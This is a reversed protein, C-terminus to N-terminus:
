TNCHILVASAYLLLWLWFHHRCESTFPLRSQLGQNTDLFFSILFLLDLSIVCFNNKKQIILWCKRNSLCLLFKSLKVSIRLNWEITALNLRQVHISFNVKESYNIHVSWKRSEFYDLFLANYLLFWIVHRKWNESLSYCSRVTVVM